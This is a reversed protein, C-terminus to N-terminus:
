LKGTYKVYNMSTRFKDIRETEHKKIIKFNDSYCEESFTEVIGKLKHLYTIKKLKEKKNLYLYIFLLVITFFVIILKINMM